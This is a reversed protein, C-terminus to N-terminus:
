EPQAKQPEELSPPASEAGGGGGGEMFKSQTNSFHHFKGCHFYMM